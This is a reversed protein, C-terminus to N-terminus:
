FTLFFFLFSPLFFYAQSSYHLAHFATKIYRKIAKFALTLFKSEIGCIISREELLTFITDISSNSNTYPRIFYKVHM